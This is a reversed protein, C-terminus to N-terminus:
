RLPDILYKSYQEFTQYLSIKTTHVVKNVKPTSPKHLKADKIIKKKKKLLSLETTYKPEM